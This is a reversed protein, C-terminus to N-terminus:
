RAFSRIMRPRLMLNEGDEFASRMDPNNWLPNWVFPHSLFCAFLAYVSRRDAWDVEITMSDYLHGNEVLWAVQGISRRRKSRGLSQWRLAECSRLLTQFTTQLNEKCLTIATSLDFQLIEWINWNATNSNTPLVLEVWMTPQDAKLWITAGPSVYSNQQSIPQQPKWSSQLPRVGGDPRRTMQNYCSRHAEFFAAVQRSPFSINRIKGGKPM